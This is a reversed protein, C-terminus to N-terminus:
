RWWVKDGEIRISVVIENHEIRGDPFAQAANVLLNLFVQGLRHEDGSVIPVLEFQRTLRARHRIQNWAIRISSEMVRRVNLPGHAPEAESRCFVKLDRTTHGIRAAGELAQELAQKVEALEENQLSPRPEIRELAYTLNGIVYALPNNIEHAIGAALM